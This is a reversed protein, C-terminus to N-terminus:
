DVLRLQGVCDALRELRVTAIGRYATRLLAALPGAQTFSHGVLGAEGITWTGTERFGPVEWRLEIRDPEIATYELRGSLGPRVRLTYQQGVAPHPPGDVGLFAENWLPLARPDLLVARIRNPDAPIVLTAREM